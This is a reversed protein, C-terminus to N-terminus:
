EEVENELWKKMSKYLGVYQPFAIDFRDKEVDDRVCELLMAVAVEDSTDSRSYGLKEFNALKEKDIKVCFETDGDTIINFEKEPIVDFDLTNEDAQVLYIFGRTQLCHIDGRSSIWIIDGPVFTEDTSGTMVRYPTLKKLEDWKM